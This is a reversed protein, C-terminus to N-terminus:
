TQPHEELHARSDAELLKQQAIQSEQASDVIEHESMLRSENIGM